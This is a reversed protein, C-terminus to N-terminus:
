SISNKNIDEINLTANLIRNIEAMKYELVQLKYQLMFYTEDDVDETLKEITHELEALFLNIDELSEKVIVAKFKESNDINMSVGSVKKMIKLIM